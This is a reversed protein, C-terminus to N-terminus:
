NKVVETRKIAWDLWKDTNYKYSDSDTVVGDKQGQIYEQKDLHANYAVRAEEVLSDHELERSILHRQKVFSELSAQRYYGYTAGGALAMYRLYNLSSSNVISM